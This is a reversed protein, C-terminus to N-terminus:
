ESKKAVVYDLDEEYLNAFHRDEIFYRDHVGDERVNEVLWDGDNAVEAQESDLSKVIFNTDMKIARIRATKRYYGPLEKVPEYTKMFTPGEVGWTRTQTAETGPDTIQFDGPKMDQKGWDHYFTVPIQLMNVIVFGKRKFVKAETMDKSNGNVISGMFVQTQTPDLTDTVEATTGEVKPNSINDTM